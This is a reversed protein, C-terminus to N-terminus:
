VAIREHSHPNETPSNVATSFKSSLYSWIRRRMSTRAESVIPPHRDPVSHAWIDGSIATIAVVILVFVDNYGIYNDCVFLAAFYSMVFAACAVLERIRHRHKDWRRPTHRRALRQRPWRRRRRYTAM